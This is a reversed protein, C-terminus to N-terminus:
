HILAYLSPKVQNQIAEILMAGDFYHRSPRSNSDLGNYVYYCKGEYFIFWIKDRLEKRKLILDMSDSDNPYRFVLYVHEDELQVDAVIKHQWYPSTLYSDHSLTAAIILGTVTRIQPDNFDYLTFKVGKKRYRKGLKSM